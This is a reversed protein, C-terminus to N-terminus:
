PCVRSMTGRASLYSMRNRYYGLEVLTDTIDPLSRHLKLPAPLETLMEPAWISFLNKLTSVDINRYHFLEQLRSMSFRIMERDFAISSGSMPQGVADNRRLFGCAVLRAEHATLAGPGYCADLLGSKTHMERVVDDEMFDLLGQRSKEPNIVASFVARQQLDDDTVVIGIELIIDHQRRLGTTEVDVFVFM